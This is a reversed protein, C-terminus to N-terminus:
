RCTSLRLHAIQRRRQLFGKGADSNHFGKTTFIGFPLSEPLTVPGIEGRCQFGILHPRDAVGMHFDDPYDADGGEDPVAAIEHDVPRHGRPRKKENM